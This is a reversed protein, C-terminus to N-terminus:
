RSPSNDRGPAREPRPSDGEATRGGRGDPWVAERGPIRQSGHNVEINPINTTPSRGADRAKKEQRARFWVDIASEIEHASEEEQAKHAEYRQRFAAVGGAAAAKIANLRDREALAAALDNSLDLLGLDIAKLQREAEGQAKAEALREQAEDQIRQWVFSSGGRRVLASVSPGLHTTPERNIGQAELTRHDIREVQGAKELAANALAQWRPRERDALNPLGHKSCHIPDLEAVKKGLTGDAGVSCASLLIHAHHNREDGHRSPAHLALDAVVGYRDVLERVFELALAKRQEPTLESPLAVEVERAVVADGRKHHKEVSNWFASRDTRADGPAVLIADEIGRKRTYDHVTDTREDVICEGARYAAAGTASRGGARSVVKMSLHFIAM